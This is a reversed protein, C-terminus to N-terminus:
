YDQINSSLLNSINKHRISLKPIMKESNKSFTMKSVYPVLDKEHVSHFAKGSSILFLEDTDTKLFTCKKKFFGTQM